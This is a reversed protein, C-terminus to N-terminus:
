NYLQAFCREHEPLHDYMCVEGGSSGSISDDPDEDSDDSDDSATEDESDQEKWLCVRNLRFNM